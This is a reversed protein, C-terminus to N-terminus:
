ISSARAFVIVGAIFFVHQWWCVWKLKFYIEPGFIWVLDFRARVAYFSKTDKTIGEAILPILALTFIAFIVSATLLWITWSKACGSIPTTATAVWGLAAVTTVLMYNSWDKFHALAQLRQEVTEDIGM